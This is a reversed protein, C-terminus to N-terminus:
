ADNRVLVHHKVSVNTEVQLRESQTMVKVGLEQSIIQGSMKDEDSREVLLGRIIAYIHV